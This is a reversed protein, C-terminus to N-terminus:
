PIVAAGDIAAQTRVGLEAQSIGRDRRYLRVRRGLGADPADGDLDLLAEQVALRRREDIGLDALRGALWRAFLDRTEWPVGRWTLTLTALEDAKM